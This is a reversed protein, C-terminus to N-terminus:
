LRNLALSMVQGDAPHIGAALRTYLRGYSSSVSQQTLVSQTSIQSMTIDVSVNKPTSAEARNM